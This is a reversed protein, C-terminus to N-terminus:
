ATGPPAGAAGHGRKNMFLSAPRRRRGPPGDPPRGQPPRVLTGLSTRAGQNNAAMEDTLEDLDDTVGPGERGPVFRTLGIGFGAARAPADPIAVGGGGYGCSSFDPVRNGRADSAYVLRGTADMDVYRPPKDAACAAPGTALALVFGVAFARSM